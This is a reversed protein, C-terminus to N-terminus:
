ENERTKMLFLALKDHKEATELHLLDEAAYLVKKLQVISLEVMMRSNMQTMVNRKEQELAMEESQSVSTKVQTLTLELDVLLVHLEEPEYIVTKQKVVQTAAMVMLKMEMMEVKQLIISEM